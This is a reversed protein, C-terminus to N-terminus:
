TLEELSFKSTRVYFDPGLYSTRDYDFPKGSAVLAFTSKGTGKEGLLVAKYILTSGSSVNMLTYSAIKKMAKDCIDGPSQYPIQQKSTSQIHTIDLELQKKWINMKKKIIDGDVNSEEDVKNGILYITHLHDTKFEAIIPIFADLKDLTSPDNLDYFLFLVSGGILIQEPRSQFVKLNIIDWLQLKIEVTEM